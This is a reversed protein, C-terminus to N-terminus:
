RSSAFPALLIRFFRRLLLNGNVGTIPVYPSRFSAIAVKDIVRRYHKLAGLALFIVVAFGVEVTLLYNSITLMLSYAQVGRIVLFTAVAIMADLVVSLYALRELLKEMRKVRQFESYYM